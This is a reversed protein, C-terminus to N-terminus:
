FGDIAVVAPIDSSRFFHKITAVIENASGTKRGTFVSPFHGIGHRAVEGRARCQGVVLVVGRQKSFAVLVIAVHREITACQRFVTRPVRQAQREVQVTECSSRECAGRHLCESRCCEFVARQRQVELIGRLDYCSLGIDHLPFSLCGPIHLIGHELAHGDVVRRIGHLGIVDAEHADVSGVVNVTRVLLNKVEVIIVM